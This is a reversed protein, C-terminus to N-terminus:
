YPNYSDAEAGIEQSRKAGPDFLIEQNRASEEEEESEPEEGKAAEQPEGIGLQELTPYEKNKEETEKLIENLTELEESEFDELKGFCKLSMKSKLEVLLHRRNQEQSEELERQLREAKGILESKEEVEAERIKLQNYNQRENFNLKLNKAEQCQGILIELAQWLEKLTSREPHRASFFDPRKIIAGGPLEIEKFEM